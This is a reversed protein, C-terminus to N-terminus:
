SHAKPSMAIGSTHKLDRGRMDAGEVARVLRTSTAAEMFFSLPEKGTTAPVNRSGCNSSQQVRNRTRDGEVSSALRRVRPVLQNGNALCTEKCM